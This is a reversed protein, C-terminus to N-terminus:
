DSLNGNVTTTKPTQSTLGLAEKTMASLGKVQLCYSIINSFCVFFEKNLIGARIAIGYKIGTRNGAFARCFYHMIKGYKTAKLSTFIHM